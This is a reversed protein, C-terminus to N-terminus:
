LESAAAALRRALDAVQSALVTRCDLFIRDDVLRAVVPPDGARLLADLRRAAEPSAGAVVGATPLEVTPLAGGGVQARDEAIRAALRERVAAPLRRLGGRARRRVAALPETLMALTPVTRLATGAEYACLTAELAAITFKDIRLARNWPNKKLRAVVESRGVVIGAQPGGLLKDGSFSVLDVGAAVTEQVTPEHPFGYPRLDVLSGSGLDEMVPIGRERGLEALERSAVAATFGVVRYNSTHVKLLLGTDPGIAQAYDRLHTRNTTGVERLVAGSRLMIDPIRFEGGIEILEGRSVVVERGHALTELALLVAAANNNVVLADAAGTLRRLLAEVHSYRSGREKTALDLELNSYASAVAALRERAQRSLLARGLNTHLVVGTANILPRLSFLGVREVRAVVRAALAEADAPVGQEAVVRQREAALTERVLAALRARSVQALEVRDALRRLVQDVSPLARLAAADARM